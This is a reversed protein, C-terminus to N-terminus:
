RLKSEWSSLIISVYRRGRSKRKKGGGDLEEEEATAQPRM